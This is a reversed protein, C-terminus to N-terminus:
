SRRALARGRATLVFVVILLGLLLLLGARPDGAAGRGARVLLRDNAIELEGRTLFLQWSGDTLVLPERVVFRGPALLLHRGGAYGHLGDGCALGVAGDPGSLRLAGRPALLLGGPWSLCSAAGDPGETWVAPARPGPLVWLVGTGTGDPGVAPRADGRAGVWVALVVLWFLGVAM